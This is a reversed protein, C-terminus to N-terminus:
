TGIALYYLSVTSGPQGGTVTVSFGTITPTALVQTSLMAAGPTATVIQTLLLFVSTVYPTAFVVVAPSSGDAPVNTLLAYKAAGTLALGTLSSSYTDGNRYVPILDTAVFGTPLTPLQAITYDARPGRASLAEACRLALRDLDILSRGM